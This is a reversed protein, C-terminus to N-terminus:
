SLEIIPLFEVLYERAAADHEEAHLKTFTSVARGYFEEARHLQWYPIAVGKAAYVHFICSPM